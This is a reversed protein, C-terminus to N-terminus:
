KRGRRRRRREESFFFFFFFVETPLFSSVKEANANTHAIAIENQWLGSSSCNQQRKDLQQVYDVLIAGSRKWGLL